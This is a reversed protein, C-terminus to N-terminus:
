VFTRSLFVFALSFITKVASLLNREQIIFNIKGHYIITVTSSVAPLQLVSLKKLWLYILTIFSMWCIIQLFDTEAQFLLTKNQKILIDSCFMSTHFHIQKIMKKWHRINKSAQSNYSQNRTICKLNHAFWERKLGKTSNCNGKSCVM